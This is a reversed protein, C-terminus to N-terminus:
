MNRAQAKREQRLKRQQEEIKPIVKEFLSKIELLHEKPMVVQLSLNGAETTRGAFAINSRSQVKLESRDFGEPLPMFGFAMSIARAYNITGVVDAKAAGGVAELAAKMESGVGKPGGAKVQDILERIVKDSDPGLAYVCKDAAFAWRYKLGEGLMKALMQAPPSDDQAIEFDVVAGGIRSGKYTGADRDIEVDMKMGFGEYLDGLVGDEMLKLEEELVEEFAKQDKVAFVYKGSFPSTDGGMNFSIAATDGMADIGKITIDRLHEKDVESLGGPVM